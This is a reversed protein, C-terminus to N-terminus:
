VLSKGALPAIAMMLRNTAAELAGRSAGDAPSFLLLQGIHISVPHNKSLLYRLSEGMNKGPTCTIGLPVIPVQAEVAMRVTGTKGPLLEATSNRQGEPFNCIVTGSQLETVAQSIVQGRDEPIQIAATTWWYNNSKTLFHVPTQRPQGDPRLALGIAAAIYFGDLFDVHNAAIIYGGSAPLNDTGTVAQLKPKFLPYGVQQLTQYVISRGAM